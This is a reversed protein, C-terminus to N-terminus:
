KGHGFKLIVATEFNKLSTTPQYRERKLPRKHPLFERVVDSMKRSQWSKFRKKFRVEKLM